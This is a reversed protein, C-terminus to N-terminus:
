AQKEGRAPRIGDAAAPRGTAAPRPRGPRGPGGSPPGPGPGAEAPRNRRIANHERKPHGTAAQQLPAQAPEGAWSCRMGVLGPHAPVLPCPPIRPGHGACVGATAAIAAPASAREHPQTENKAAATAARATAAPAPDRSRPPPPRAPPRPRSPGPADGELHVGGAVARGGRTLPTPPLSLPASHSIRPQHSIRRTRHNCCAAAAVSVTTSAVGVADAVSVCLCFWRCLCCAYCRLWPM